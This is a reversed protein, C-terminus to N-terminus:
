PALPILQAGCCMVYKPDPKGSAGITSDPYLFQHALAVPGSADAYKVIQIRTGRPFGMAACKEPSM